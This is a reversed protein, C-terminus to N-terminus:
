NNHQKTEDDCRRQTIVFECEKPLYALMVEFGSFFMRGKIDTSVCEDCMLLHYFRPTCYIVYCMAKLQNYTYPFAEIAETIREAPYSHEKLFEQFKRREREEYKTYACALVIVFLCVAGILVTVEGNTM